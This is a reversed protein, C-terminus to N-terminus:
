EIIEPYLKTYLKMLMGAAQDAQTEIDSIKNNHTIDGMTRQKHHALEHGLTRLIDVLNRNGTYIWMKNTNPDYYGTRDQKPQEKDPSFEINPLPGKIHLKEFVWAVFDRIIDKQDMSENTKKRGSKM